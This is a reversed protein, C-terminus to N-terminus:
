LEFKLHFRFFFATQGNCELFINKKPHFQCRGVRRPIMGLLNQRSCTVARLSSYHHHPYRLMYHEKKTSILPGSLTTHRFIHSIIITINRGSQNVKKNCITTDQPQASGVWESVRETVWKNLQLRVRCTAVGTWEVVTRELQTQALERAGTRLLASNLTGWVWVSVCEYVWLPSRQQSHCAWSRRSHTSWSCCSPHMSTHQLTLRCSM